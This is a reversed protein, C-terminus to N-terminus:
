KKAEGALKMIDDLSRRYAVNGNVTAGKKSLEDMAKASQKMTSIDNSYLAYQFIFYQCTPDKDYNQRRYIDDVISKMDYVPTYSKAHNNIDYIQNWRAVMKDDCVNYLETARSTDSNNVHNSMLKLWGSGFAVCLGILVTTELTAIIGLVIVIIKFINFKQCTSSPVNDNDNDTEPEFQRIQDLRDDM